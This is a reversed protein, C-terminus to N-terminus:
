EMMAAWSGGIMGALTLKQTSKFKATVGALQLSSGSTNTFSLEGTTKVTEGGVVIGAAEGTVEQAGAISCTGGSNSFTLTVFPKGPLPSFLDIITGTPVLLLHDFGDVLIPQSVACNAPKSVSCTLFTIHYLTLGEAKLNGSGESEACIIKTGVTELVSEGSTSKITEEETGTLKKGLVLFSFASASASAAASLAFVALMSLMILKIKSM